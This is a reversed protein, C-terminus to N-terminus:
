SIGEDRIRSRVGWGGTFNPIQALEPQRTKWLAPPQCPEQPPAVGLSGPLTSFFATTTLKPTRPLHVQEFGRIEPPEPLTETQIVSGARACSNLRNRDRVGSPGDSFAAM